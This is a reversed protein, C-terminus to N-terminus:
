GRSHSKISAIPYPRGTKFLDPRNDQPAREDQEALIQQRFQLEPGTALDMKRRMARAHRRSSIGARVAYGLAFGLMGGIFLFVFAEPSM